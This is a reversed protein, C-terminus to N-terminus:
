GHGTHFDALNYLHATPFLTEHTMHEGLLRVGLCVAQGKAPDAGARFLHFHDAARGVHRCALIDTEGLDAGDQVVAVGALM